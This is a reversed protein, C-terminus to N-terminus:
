QKGKPFRSMDASRAINIDKNWLRIADLAFNSATADTNKGICYVSLLHQQAPLHLIQFVHEVQKPEATFLDINATGLRKDNVGMAFTGSNATHPLLLRIQYNGAKTIKFPMTLTHKHGALWHLSPSDLVDRMTVKGLSAKADPFMEAALIETFYNKYLRDAPAPLPSYPKHPEIQYWYAVTAIDDEREGYGGVVVGDSQPQRGKHEMDMYLSKTFPIPDPLHWRYASTLKGTGYGQYIPTGYFPGMNERFAWADGFYDELGTGKLSPIKEGDIYFFDDGEGYWDDTMARLNYVTGVYHGRGEIAAIPYNRGMVAPYEQRYMAHFYAVDEPLEPLQRWDINYYFCDVPLTGENTVTIKASKRFPMPWYCNRASGDATIRIPFSEVDHDRGHGIGFFDGLPVEVSPQEEGDWYMRVVLLRSYGREQAGVTIWIHAIEGSGAVDVLTLAAGAPIPRFDANGDEWDPDASSERRPMYNKLRALDQLPDILSALLAVLAFLSLLTLM